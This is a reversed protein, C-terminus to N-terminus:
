VVAVPFKEAVIFSLFVKSNRASTTSVAAQVAASEFSSFTLTLFFFYRRAQIALRPEGGREGEPLPDCPFAGRRGRPARPADRLAFSLAGGHGRPISRPRHRLLVHLDPSSAVRRDVPGELAAVTLDVPSGGFGKFGNPQRLLRHRLLVDLDDASYEIPHAVPSNSAPIM